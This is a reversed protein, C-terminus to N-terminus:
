FIIKPISSGLCEGRCPQQLQLKHHCYGHNDLYCTETWQEAEGARNDVHSQEYKSNLAMSRRRQQQTGLAQRQWDIDGVRMASLLLGAACQPVSLCVRRASPCTCSHVRGNCLGQEAHKAPLALLSQHCHNHSCRANAESMQLRRIVNRLKGHTGGSKVSVSRWSKMDDTTGNSLAQM